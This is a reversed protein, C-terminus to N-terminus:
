KKKKAKSNDAFIKKIDKQLQKLTPLKFPSAPKPKPKRKPSQKKHQQKKRGGSLQFGVESGVGAPYKATFPAVRVSGDYNLLAGSSVAGTRHPAPGSPLNAAPAAGGGGGRLSQHNLVYQGQRKGFLDSWSMAGGSLGPYTSQARDLRNWAADSVHGTVANSAPSGGRKRPSAKKRPM